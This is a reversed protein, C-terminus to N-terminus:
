LKIANPGTLQKVPLDRMALIVCGDTTHTGHIAGPGRLILSGPLHLEGNEYYEGQLVFVLEYGPHLHPPTAAGPLYKILALDSGNPDGKTNDYLVHILTNVRLGVQYPVFELDAPLTVKGGFHMKVVRDNPTNLDDPLNPVDPRNM